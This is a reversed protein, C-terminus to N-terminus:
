RKNASDYKLNSRMISLEQEENFLFSCGMIPCKSCKCEGCKPQVLTGLEEGEIFKIVESSMHNCSTEVLACHVGIFGCTIPEVRMKPHFGLLVYGFPTKRIRLHDGFSHIVESSHLGEYDGGVLIDVESGVRQLASVDFGPFFNQLIELNFKAIPGTLQNISFAMVSVTNGLETILEVRYIDTKLDTKSGGVTAMEIHTSSVKTAGVRRAASNTIFTHTSGSDFFLTASYGGVVSVSQIPFLTQCMSKSMQNAEVPITEDCSNFSTAAPKEVVGKCLTSHHTKSNCHECVDTSKCDKRLHKGLCRFCCNNEKLCQFRQSRNKALYGRCQETSHHESM